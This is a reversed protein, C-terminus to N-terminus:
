ENNMTDRWYDRAKKLWKRQEQEKFEPYTNPMERWQGGEFRLTVETYVGNGMYVRNSYNKRSSLVFKAGTVYGPDINFRRNGDSDQYQEEVSIATNKRATIKSPDFLSEYIYWRRKLPSGLEKEYYDTFDFEYPPIDQYRRGFEGDLLELIDRVNNEPSSLIGLVFVASPSNTM